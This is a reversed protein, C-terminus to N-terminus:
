GGARPVPLFSLTPMTEDTSHSVHDRGLFVREMVQQVSRPEPPVKGVVAGDAYRVILHGFLLWGSGDPLWQISRKGGASWLSDIQPLLYGISYDCLRRRNEMDWCMLRGWTKPKEDLRWLMAIQKGDDSFALGACSGTRDDPGRVNLTGVRQGTRLDWFLLQHNERSNPNRHDASHQLVLYNRGPSLAAIRPHPLLPFTFESESKRSALNWVRYTGVITAPGHTLRTVTLLRDGSVFDAAILQLMRHEGAQIRVSKGTAVMRVEVTPLAHKTAWALAHGTPSLVPQTREPLDDLQQPQGIPTWKSLDHVQFLNKEGPLKVAAYPAPTTPFVVSGSSGIAIGAGAPPSSAPRVPGPDIKVTWPSERPEVPTVGAIAPPVRNSAQTTYVYAIAALLGVLCLGAIGIIAVGLLSRSSDPDRVSPATPRIAKGEGVPVDFVEHCQRCRVSEGALTDALNYATGCHPCAIQIAM